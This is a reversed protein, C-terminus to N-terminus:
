KFNIFEVKREVDKFSESTDLREFKLLILKRIYSTKWLEVLNLDKLLLEVGCMQYNMNTIQYWVHDIVINVLIFMM